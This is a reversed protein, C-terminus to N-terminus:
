GTRLLYLVTFKLGKWVKWGYLLLLVGEKMGGHHLNIDNCWTGHGLVVTLV